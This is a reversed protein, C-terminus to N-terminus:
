RKPAEQHRLTVEVKQHDRIVGLSLRQPNASPLSNFLSARGLPRGEVSEIIDFVRLGSRAAASEPDVFIVLLGGRSGLQAAAKASLMVTELGRAISPLRNPAQGGVGFAEAMRMARAPNLAEGMKVSVEFPKFPVLAAPTAASAQPPPTASQPPRPMAPAFGAPPRPTAGRLLTFNVTAGGGAENLVFSFDEPSKVEFDNVRVIVDGPRLDALAAPTGPAVSTLLIGNYAEKLKAVEMETWGSSYFTQLPTAAVAEGRVGLWPRPVSAQREIVRRAARRVAAAPIVRARGPESADVIGVTEGAENLAVGGVIAPSLNHASVTLFAIKGASTRKIDSVQGQIEGVRVSVTGPPANMGPSVRQPAYLLVPQGVALQEEAADRAPSSKLGNIKLLSLGSGGDMGLYTAVFQKGGSEVVIFDARPAPRYQSSAWVRPQPSSGRTEYAWTMSSSAPRPTMVAEIEAQSLRAAISQGDGLIFGATINTTVTASSTVLRDDVTVLKEGSRRLLALAKVGNLRHLITVVQPTRARAPEVLLAETQQQQPQAPPPPKPAAQQAQANAWGVGILVISLTLKQLHRYLL